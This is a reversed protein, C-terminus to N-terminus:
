GPGPMARAAEARFFLRREALEAVLLLTFGAVALFAGTPGTAASGVLSLPLLCAIALLASAVRVSAEGRLPGILLRASRELASPSSGSSRLHRLGALEAGLKALTSGVCLVVLTVVLTKPPELGLWGAACALALAAAPGLVLVSGFFRFSSRGLSWFPKSTDAYIM